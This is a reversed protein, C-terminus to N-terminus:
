HRHRAVAAETAERLARARETPDPWEERLRRSRVEMSFPVDEAFLEAFAMVPLEGEGPASRADLADALLERTSWGSPEAPGDCWQVYPFLGPDAAAIEDFTTGSRHVHLQDVLIGANPEGVRGVVDLADALTRVATFRMFELCVRVGGPAARRCLAALREATRDPEEFSSIALVNRAGLELAADVVEDGADGDPGLRAVEVDLAVLGTDDVRRRVAATTADTWSGPDYWVGTARWGADAAATVFAVPDAALEPTVGAALSLLRGM